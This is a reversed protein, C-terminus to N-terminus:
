VLGPVLRYTSTHVAGILEQGYSEAHESYADIATALAEERTIGNPTNTKWWTQQIHGTTTDRYTLSVTQVVGTATKSPWMGMDAPAPVQNLARFPEDPTRAVLGKAVSFLQLAETRRPAIGLDRLSRYFANASSGAKAAVLAAPFLGLIRAM